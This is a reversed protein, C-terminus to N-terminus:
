NVILADPFDVEKGKVPNANRYDNLAMWIVQGNEFKINQEEFLAQVVKILESKELQYKKGKLTWLTEALVVDTIM